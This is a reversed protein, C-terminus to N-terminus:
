SGDRGGDMGDWCGELEEGGEMVVVVVVVM